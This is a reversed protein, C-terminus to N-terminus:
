PLIGGELTFGGGPPVNGATSGSRITTSGGELLSGERLRFSRAARAGRVVM